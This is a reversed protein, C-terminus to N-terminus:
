IAGKIKNAYEHRIYGLKFVIHLLISHDPMTREPIVM